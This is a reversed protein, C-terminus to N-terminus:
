TVSYTGSVGFGRLSGFDYLDNRYAQRCIGDSREKEYRVVEARIYNM